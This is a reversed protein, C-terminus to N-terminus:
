RFSTKLAEKLISPKKKYPTVPIIKKNKINFLTYIAIRAARVSYEETFVMDEPIEVFQSIMAFNTSGNPVVDPRDTKARPQFQADVYPMMCPIVNIVTDLIEEQMDEMHMHHLLEILMEEGTCDSMRKKVFDGVKDTYISYGWLMKTDLPQNKFHPQAAVVISM